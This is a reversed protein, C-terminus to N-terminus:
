REDKFRAGVARAAAILSGPGQRYGMRGNGSYGASDRRETERRCWSRWTADWDLKTANTAKALWYDRFQPLVAFPDLGLGIAFARCEESPEWDPSLRTGRKVNAPEKKPEVQLAPVAHPPTESESRLSSDTSTPTPTPTPANRESASQEHMESANAHSKEKKWRAKASATNKKQKKRVWNLEDLLRKQWIWNGDTQCFEVILPRVENAIEELTCRLRKALWANDNPIKGEPARWMHLLILLYTGHETRTLHQCDALYADTWLPLAPFEAV